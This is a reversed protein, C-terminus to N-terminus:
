DIPLCGANADWRCDQDAICLDRTQHKCYLESQSAVAM